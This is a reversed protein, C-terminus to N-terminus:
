SKLVGIFLLKGRNAKAGCIAAHMSCRGMTSNVAPASFTIENLGVKCSRSESLTENAQYASFVRDDHNGLKRPMMVAPCYFTM